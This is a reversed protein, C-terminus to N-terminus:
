RLLVLVAVALLLVGFARRLSKASLRRSWWAGIAAGALTAGLMAMTLRWDLPASGWKAALGAACNLAIVLLSTAIAHHMELRAVLSLLPVILFGGGAGVAGTMVGISMAALVLGAWRWPSTLPADSPEARKRFSGLGAAVLVVAFIDLLIRSSWAQSIRAGLFAGPIGAVATILGLNIRVRRPQTAALIAATSGVVVLSMLVASHPDVRAVLVLVPVTLISGGAGLLGIIVGIGVALFLSPLM